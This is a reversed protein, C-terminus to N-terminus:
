QSTETLKGAMNIDQKECLVQNMDAYRGTSTCHIFSTLKFKQKYGLGLNLKLHRVVIAAKAVSPAITILFV